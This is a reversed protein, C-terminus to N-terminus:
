VSLVFPKAFYGARVPDEEPLDNLDILNADDPEWPPLDEIGAQEGHFQIPIANTRAPPTGPPWHTPQPDHQEPKYHRGTPSTWGPPKNKTAPDPTWTSHHKLRHHRPCLQA